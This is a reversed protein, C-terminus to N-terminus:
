NNSNKASGLNFQLGVQFFNRWQIGKGIYPKKNADTSLRNKLVAAEDDYIAQTDWLFGLWSLPKYSFSNNFAVDINQPKRLREKNELFNSFLTLGAQWKLQATLDKHAAVGIRSGLERKLKDFDTINGNADRTLFNGYYGFDASGVSAKALTEDGIYIGRFVVPAFEFSLWDLPKYGLGVGIDFTLPAFLRSVMGINKDLDKIDPRIGFVTKLQSTDSFNYTRFSQTVLNVFTNANWKENIKYGVKSGVSLIDSGKRWTQFSENTGFGLDFVGNNEWVLRDKTYTANAKLNAGVALTNLAGAVWTQYNNANGSLFLSAGRTWFGSSPNLVKKEKKNAVETTTPNTSPPKTRVQATVSISALLFASLLTLLLKKKM